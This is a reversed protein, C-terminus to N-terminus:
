ISWLNLGSQEDKYRDIEGDYVDIVIEATASIRGYNLHGGFVRLEGDGLTIHLHLYPEGNMVSVNGTLGTIEFSGQLTEKHYDQAKVDFNGITVQDCAGIGSVKGLRIEYISIVERLQEIIDEGPELRVFVAGDIRKSKM